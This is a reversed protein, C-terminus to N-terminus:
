QPISITASIARHDSGHDKEISFNDVKISKSLFIHDIQMLRINPLWEFGRSQPTVTPRHKTDADVLGTKLELNNLAEGRAMDVARVSLAPLVIQSLQLILKSRLFKSPWIDEGHMANFDGMVVTPMNSKNVLKSLDNSQRIRTAETRDDFHIGIIRYGDETTAVICNRLNGLKVVKINAIKNKSLLLMSLQDTYASRTKLDDDYPAEYIYYGLEKLKNLSKLEQSSNESHAELLVLIDADLSEIASIIDNSKGRKAPEINSLRGEVNWSAVRITPM